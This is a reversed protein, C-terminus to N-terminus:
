SERPGAAIRIAGHFGREAVVLLLCRACFIAEEAEPARNQGALFPKERQVGALCPTSDVADEFSEGVSSRHALADRKQEGTKEDQGSPRRAGVIRLPQQQEKLLGVAVRGLCVLVLGTLPQDRFEQRLRRLEVDRDNAGVVGPRFSGLLELLQVSRQSRVM